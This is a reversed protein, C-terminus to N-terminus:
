ASPRMWISQLAQRTAKAAPPAAAALLHTLVSGTAAKPIRSRAAAPRRLFFSGSRRVARLLSCRWCLRARAQRYPTLATVDMAGLVEALSSCTGYLLHGEKALQKALEFQHNDALTENVVVVLPSRPLAVLQPPHSRALTSPRPCRFCPSSSSLSRARWRARPEGDLRSCKSAPGLEQARAGGMLTLIVALWFPGSGGAAAEEVAVSCALM